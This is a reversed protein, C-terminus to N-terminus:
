VSFEWYFLFIPEKRTQIVRSSSSQNCVEQLRVIRVSHSHLAHCPPHHALRDGKSTPRLLLSLTLSILNIELKQM